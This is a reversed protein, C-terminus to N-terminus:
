VRHFIAENIAAVYDLSGADNPHIGDAFLGAAQGSAYGGWREGLDLFPRGKATATQYWGERWQAWTQPSKGLANDCEPDWQIMVDGNAKRAGTPATGSGVQRDIVTALDTQADTLARPPNFQWDNIGLAIDLLDAKLFDIMPLGYLGNVEDNHPANASFLSLFSKGSISANTVEFKGDGSVIPKVALLYTGASAPATIRVTHSGLGGCDIPVTVCQGPAYATADTDTVKAITGVGSANGVTGAPAGDITVSYLGSAGEATFIQVADMTDTFEVYNTAGAAILFTGASHFGFAGTAPSVPATVTGGFAWRPDWTPNTLNSGQCIVWGGGWRDQQELIARLRGPWSTKNKPPTNGTSSAGYAKSDGLIAIHARGAGALVAARKSRWKQGALPGPLYLGLGTAYARDGQAAVTASLEDGNAPLGRGQLLTGLGADQIEVMEDAKASANAAAEQAQTVLATWQDVVKITQGMDTEVDILDDLDISQGAQAVDVVFPGFTASKKSGGITASLVITVSLAHGGTVEEGNWRWGPQNTCPVIFEIDSGAAVAGSSDINYWGSKDGAWSLRPTVKTLLSTPVTGLIEATIGMGAGAQEFARAPGLTVTAYLMGAPLANPFVVAM